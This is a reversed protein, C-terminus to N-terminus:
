YGIRRWGARAPAIEVTRHRTAYQAPITERWAHGPSVMVTRERTGYVAPVTELVARAPAVEVTRHRVAYVPKREVWCGIERGHRDRTVQWVRGGPSVMVREAVTAYQAPVIREVRHEPRVVVTESQTAYVPPTSRAITQPPRVMVTEAVSGYVPPQVVKEYCDLCRGGASAPMSASFLVVAAISFARFMM